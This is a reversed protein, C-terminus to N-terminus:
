LLLDLRSIEPIAEKTFTQRIKGSPKYDPSFVCQKCFKKDKCKECVQSTDLLLPVTKIVEELTRTMPMGFAWALRRVAGSYPFSLNPCYSMPNGGVTFIERVVAPNQPVVTRRWKKPIYFFIGTKYQRGGPSLHKLYAPSIDGAAKPVGFATPV